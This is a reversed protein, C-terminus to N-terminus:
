RTTLLLLPVVKTILSMSIGPSVLMMSRESRVSRRGPCLTPRTPGGQSPSPGSPSPGTGPRQGSRAPRSAGRSIGALTGLTKLMIVAHIIQGVLGRGHRRALPGLILHQM